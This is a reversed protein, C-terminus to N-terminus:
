IKDFLKKGISRVAYQHINTYQLLYMGVSKWAQVVHEDPCYILYYGSIIMLSALCQARANMNALRELLTPILTPFKLFVIAFFTEMINRVSPLTDLGLVDFLKDM